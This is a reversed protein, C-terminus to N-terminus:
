CFAEKARLLLRMTRVAEAESKDMVYLRRGRLYIGCHEGIVASQENAAAGIFSYYGSETFPGSWQREVVYQPKTQPLCRFSYPQGNRASHLIEEAIEYHSKQPLPKAKQEDTGCEEDTIALLSPFLTRGKKVSCCDAGLSPLVYTYVALNGFSCKNWREGVIESLEMSLSLNLDKAFKETQKKTPGGVILTPGVLAVGCFPLFRKLEDWYPVMEGRLRYDAKEAFPHPDNGVGEACLTVSAVFKPKQKPYTSWQFGEGKRLSDVIKRTIKAETKWSIASFMQKSRVKQNKKPLNPIEVATHQNGTNIVESGKPDSGNIDTDSSIAKRHSQKITEM